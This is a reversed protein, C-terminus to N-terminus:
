REARALRQILVLMRHPLQLPKMAALFRLREGIEDSIARAHIQTIHLKRDIM